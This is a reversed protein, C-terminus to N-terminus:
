FATLMLFAISSFSTSLGGFAKGPWKSIWSGLQESALDKEKFSWQLTAALTEEIYFDSSQFM